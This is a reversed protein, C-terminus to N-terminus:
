RCSLNRSRQAKGRSSSTRKPKDVFWHIHREYFDILLDPFSEKATENSIFFLKNPCLSCKLLFEMEQSPLRSRTISVIREPKFALYDITSSQLDNANEDVLSSSHNGIDSRLKKQPPSFSQKRRKSTKLQEVNSEASVQEDSKTAIEDISFIFCVRKFRTLLNM